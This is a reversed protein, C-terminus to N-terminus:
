FSGIENYQTAYNALNRFAEEIESHNVANPFEANIHITQQNNYDNKPKSVRSSAGVFQAMVLKFDKVANNLYDNLKFEKLISIAELFNETDHKDLVLEKEHLMALRGESGWQGTYGGTDFADLFDYSDLFRKFTEYFGSVWNPWGYKTDYEGELWDFLLQRLILPDFEGSRNKIRTILQQALNAWDEKHTAMAGDFASSKEYTLINLNYLHNQPSENHELENKRLKLLAPDNKGKGLPDDTSEKEGDDDTSDKEGGGGPGDGTFGMIAQLLETDGDVSVNYNLNYNTEFTQDLEGLKTLLANLRTYCNSAEEEQESLEEQIKHWNSVGADIAEKSKTSWQKALEEIKKDTDEVIKQVGPNDKTGEGLSDKVGKTFKNIGSIGSDAKEVSNLSNDVSKAFIDFSTAATTLSDNWTETAIQIAAALGDEDNLGLKVAIITDEFSSKFDQTADTAIGISNYYPEYYNEGILDGFGQIEAGAQKIYELRDSYEKKIENIKSERDPDNATIGALKENM